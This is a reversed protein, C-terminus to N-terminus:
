KGLVKKAAKAVHEPTFGFHEAVVKLPASLGFTNIGLVIGKPGAYRDWGIPSAEEVTVRAEIAPPLVKDRYAQDQAEYLERCPMSVVRAKIDDAALLDRAAVCLSVESGTGILIVDPKGDHADALIYAGKALGSAPAFKTRDFIPLAQRSLILAAPRSKHPIVLRYAEVTENADAPRIVMMGPIARLSVLQEIPQHTPGDQGLSISDHSWIHLVPLDMLSSLRIAGRAYDTFILYSSAYGKVGTLVMGNVIACMAHERIGYRLNRGSYDGLKGYPQFEGADEFTLVVKTSGAVDAAGGMIWPVKAAIANLVDGSAERTAIGKPDPAYNPIESDWGDPLDRDRILAIEAAEGPHKKAYDAFRREWKARADAGRQGMEASFHERVGDPVVFSRDPDFGLFEKTRRVEEPGLPSGHAAPTDHKEPSGYGIHSHVIILTPRDDTALFENYAPALQSLENPNEVHTVNWGYAEFRKGVDETFTIDTHGDITVDNNDFIWCLNSLKLHGALSAAESSIGEMLCGEGSLAYVNFDFIDFGPKNYTAALWKGAIAMGVSTALGQGLPGTTAEVGTTWGYEPHGPCHSGAKRFSEIDALTVAEGGEKHYCTETAEIGALHILSYLLMSAHGASLVFRDRNIWQPAKPDYRLFQQWLAYSTPAADMATGPHGSNAKQIADISLTRITNVALTDLEDHSLTM